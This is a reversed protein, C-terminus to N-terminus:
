KKPKPYHFIQTWYPNGNANYAVAAGFETVDPDILAEYHGSSTIWGKVAGEPSGYNWGINERSILLWHQGRAFRTGRSGLETHVPGVRYHDFIGTKAMNASKRRSHSMLEETPHVDKRGIRRREANTLELVRFEAWTMKVKEPNPGLDSEYAILAKPDIKTRDFVDLKLPLSVAQADPTSTESGRPVVPAPPRTEVEAPKDMSLKGSVSQAQNGAVVAPVVQHIQAPEAVPQPQVQPQAVQRVNNNHNTNGNNRNRLGLPGAFASQAFALAVLVLILQKM